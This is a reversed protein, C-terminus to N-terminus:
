ARSSNSMLWQGACVTSCGAAGAAAAAAVAAEATVAAAAEAAAATAEAAAAAVEFRTPDGGKPRQKLAGAPM